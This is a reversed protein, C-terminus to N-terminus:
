KRDVMIQVLKRFRVPNGDVSAPQYRWQRAAAMLLPDYVPHVSTRLTINVVRGQEDIVIELLGRDRTHSAVSIPVRPVDQKIAVPATVGAEDGTWVHAPSPVV